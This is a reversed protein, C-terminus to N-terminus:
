SLIKRFTVDLTEHRVARADFGLSRFVVQICFGIGFAALVTGLGVPAGLLWGAMVASGEVIGLSVLIAARVGRFLEGKL